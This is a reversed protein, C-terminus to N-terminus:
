KRLAIDIAQKVLQTIQPKTDRAAPGMFPRAAMKSTGFELAASYLANSAVQVHLPGLQTVTINIRLHSTDENPPEGPLSPVHGKGSVSGDTILFAARAKLQEGGAFLARGVFEIKERSALGEIRKRAADAGSIKAM